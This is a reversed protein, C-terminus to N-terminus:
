KGDWLIPCENEKCEGSKNDEHVCKKKHLYPCDECNRQMIVEYQIGWGTGKMEPMEWGM